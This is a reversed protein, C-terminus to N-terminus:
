SSNKERLQKKIEERGGIAAVLLDFSDVVKLKMRYELKRQLESATIWAGCRYADAIQEIPILKDKDKHLFMGEKKLLYSM